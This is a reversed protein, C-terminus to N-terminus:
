AEFDMSELLGKVKVLFPAAIAGDLARHDISLRMNMMPRLLIQGEVGIPMERIRGVALMAAQPPNIVAQFADIGYMGLNSVTFTANSLDEFRFRGDQARERLKQIRRHIEVVGKENARHVVPVILGDELAMAVGINIERYVKLQGESFSANVERHQSLAEGVAKVVIATYSVKEGWQEEQEAQWRVAETMDAEVELVFHPTTQFSETLRAGTTQRLRSLSVLDYEPEAVAPEGKRQREIARLVDAEVIRGGPGSGEVTALDIGHERATRRAIPTALIRGEPKKDIASPPIQEPEIIDEAVKMSVPGLEPVEEGVAAIFAIVEGVPASGGAEVRVGRLIGSAEAEMVVDAKDTEVEFLPEGEQVEEGEHKLWRLIVGEWMDHTLRPMIVEIAM